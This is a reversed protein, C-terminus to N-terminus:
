EKKESIKQSIEVIGFVGGFIYFIDGFVGIIIMVIHPTSNEDDNDLAKKARLALILVVIALVLLISFGIILGIGLTKLSTEDRLRLPVANPNDEIIQKAFVFILIGMIATIAHFVIQIINIIIGILYMIKSAPKM